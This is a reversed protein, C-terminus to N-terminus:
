EAGSAPLLAFPHHTETHPDSDAPCVPPLRARCSPTYCDRYGPFVLKDATNTAAQEATVDYRRYRTDYPDLFGKYGARREKVGLNEVNTLRVNGPYTVTTRKPKIRVRPGQDLKDGYSNVAKEERPVMDSGFHSFTDKNLHEETYGQGQRMDASSDTGVNPVLFGANKDFNDKTDLDEHGGGYKPAQLFVRDESVGGELSSHEIPVMGAGFHSFTDLDEHGAGYAGKTVHSDKDTSSGAVPVMNAKFHSFTDLDEHGAGYPAAITMISKAATPVLGAEGAVLFSETDKNAHQEGYQLVGGARGLKLGDIRRMEELQIESEPGISRTGPRNGSGRRMEPASASKPVGLPPEGATAGGMNPTSASKGVGHSPSASGQRLAPLDGHPSLGTTRRRPSRHKQLHRAMDFDARRPARAADLSRRKAIAESISAGAMDSRPPPGRRPVYLSGYLVAKGGDLTKAHPPQTKNPKTLFAKNSGRYTPVFGSGISTSRAPLDAKAGEGGKYKFTQSTDYESKVLLTGYELHAFTDKDEAKILHGDMLEVGGGYRPVNEPLAAGSGPMLYGDQMNFHDETDKHEHGAGYKPAADVGGLELANRDAAGAHQRFSDWNQENPQLHEASATRDFNDQPPRFCHM